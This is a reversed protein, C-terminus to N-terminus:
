KSVIRDLLLRAAIRNADNICWTRFNPSAFPISSTPYPNRGPAEAKFRLINVITSTIGSAVVVLDWLDAEGRPSTVLLSAGNADRFIGSGLDAHRDPHSFLVAEQFCWLSTFWAEAQNVSELATVVNQVENLKKDALRTTSSYDCCLRLAIKLASDDAWKINHAWIIGRKSNPYVFRMKNMEQQVIPILNPHIVFNPNPVNVAGPAAPWEGQPICAWDWWVFRMGMSNITRVAAEVTFQEPSTPTRPNQRVTPFCWSLPNTPNNNDNGISFTPYRRIQVNDGERVYAHDGQRVKWRGWAYSIAGYGNERLHHDRDNWCDDFTRIQYLQADLLYKPREVPLRAQPLPLRLDTQPPRVNAPDGNPNM